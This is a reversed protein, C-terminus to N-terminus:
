VRWIADALQDLSEITGLDVTEGVKDLVNFEHLLTMTMARRVRADSRYDDWGYSELFAGLMATDGHFLGLHLAPLEYFRDGVRADGWDIVGRIRWGDRETVDGFVHHGHLDAHVLVPAARDPVRYAAVYRDIQGILRDPLSGWARHREEVGRKQGDIFSMWGTWGSGFVETDPILVDHLRRVMVGLDHAVQTREDGPSRGRWDAFPEGEVFTTITYRWDPDRSLVGAAILKPMPIPAGAHALMRAVEVEVAWCRLGDFPAGFLKVVHSRDLIYTPFTGPEGVTVVDVRVGHEEAIADIYRRWFEVDVFREGYRDMPVALDGRMEDGSGVIPTFRGINM